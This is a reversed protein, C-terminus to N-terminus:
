KVIARGQCVWNGGSVLSNTALYLMYFYTICNLTRRNTGAASCGKYSLMDIPMTIRIYMKGNHELQDLRHLIYALKEGPIEYVEGIATDGSNEGRCPVMGPIPGLNVLMCGSAKGIGVFECGTLLLNNCEGRKLTGYCFLYNTM